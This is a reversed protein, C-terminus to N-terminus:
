GPCRFQEVTEETRFLEVEPPPPFPPVTAETAALESPDTEGSPSKPQRFHFPTVVPRQRRWRDAM